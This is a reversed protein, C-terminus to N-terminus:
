IFLAAALAVGNTALLGAAWRQLTAVEGRVDSRLEAMEGRLETTLEARLLAMEGVLEGRLEAMEGTLAATQAHLDARLVLDDPPHHPLLQMIDDAAQGGLAEELKAHIHRRQRDTVTM